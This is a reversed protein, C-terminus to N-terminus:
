LVDPLSARGRSSGNRPRSWPRVRGSPLGASYLRMWSALGIRARKEDPVGTLALGRALILSGRLRSSCNLEIRCVGADVPGKKAPLVGSAPGGADTPWSALTSCDRNRCHRHNADLRFVSDALFLAVRCRRISAAAFGM